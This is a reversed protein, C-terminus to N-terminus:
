THGVMAMYQGYKGMNEILGFHDLGWTIYFSRPLNDLILISARVRCTQGGRRLVSKVNPNFSRFDAPM